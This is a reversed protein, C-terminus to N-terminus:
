RQDRPNKPKTIDEKPVPVIKKDPAPTIGLEKAKAIMEDINKIVKLSREKEAKLDAELNKIAERIKQKNELLRAVPINESKEVIIRITHDDVKEYRRPIKSMVDEKKYTETM